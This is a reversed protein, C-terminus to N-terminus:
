EEEESEWMGIKLKTDTIMGVYRELLNTFKKETMGNMRKDMEWPLAPVIGVYVNWDDDEVCDVPIGEEERIAKALLASLGIFEGDEYGSLWNELDDLTFEDDRQEDYENYDGAFMLFKEVGAMKIETEFDLQSVNVGYIPKM